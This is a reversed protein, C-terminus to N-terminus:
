AAKLKVGYHFPYKVYHFFALDKQSVIVREPYKIVVVSFYSLHKWQNWIRYVLFVVIRFLSGKFM